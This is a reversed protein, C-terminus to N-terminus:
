SNGELSLEDLNTLDDFANAPILQIGCFSLDLVKLRTMNSFCDQKLTFSPIEVSPKKGSKENRKILLCELYNLGRFSDAEIMNIADTPLSLTKLNVLRNFTRETFPKLKINSLDLNTLQDLGAAIETDFEVDSTGGWITLDKLNVLLRFLDKELEDAKDIWMELKVLTQAGFKFMQADPEIVPSCILVLETVYNDKIQHFFNSSINTNIFRLKQIRYKALLREVEIRSHVNDIQIFDIHQSNVSTQEFLDITHALDAFSECSLHLRKINAFLFQAEPRISEAPPNELQVESVDFLKASPLKIISNLSDGKFAVSSHKVIM